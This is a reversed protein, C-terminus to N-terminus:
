QASAPAPLAYKAVYRQFESRFAHTDSHAARLTEHLNLNHQAADIVCGAINSCHDSTRELNTLLDSWVFGAEISCHGQQMRLIHRTRMQEKLTDIVQELPEVLEAIAVDQREFSRLSLDLIEGIAAALVDYERAAAASFALSKGRLEEASELINVAHDSIREFDGISKLLETAEESTMAMTKNFHVHKGARIAKLGQEYHFRIPSCISVVDVNPDALLEDDTMYWNKIGYQEAMAQARGPVPDCVAAMYVKDATDGLVLHKFISNIAIEGSGIAGLGLPKM